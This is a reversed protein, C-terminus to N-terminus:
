RAAVASGDYGKGVLLECGKGKFCQHSVRVGEVLVRALGAGRKEGLGRATSAHPPRRLRQKVGRFVSM